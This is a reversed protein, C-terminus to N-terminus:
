DVPFIDVVACVVQLLPRSPPPPAWARSATTVTPPTECHLPVSFGLLRPPPRLRPRTHTLLLRARPNKAVPGSSHPIIWLVEDM